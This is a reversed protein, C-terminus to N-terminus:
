RRTQRSLAILGLALLAWTGPEPVFTLDLTAFTPVRVFYDGGMGRGDIIMVSATVLQIDGIGNEDRNDFGTRSVSLGEVGGVVVDSATVTGTSWEMGITQTSLIEDLPFPVFGVQVGGLGIPDLFIRLLLDDDKDVPLPQSYFEFTGDLSMLGGVTGDPRPAFSGATTSYNTLASQVVPPIEEPTGPGFDGGFDTVTFAGAPLQFVGTTADRTAEGAGATPIVLLGDFIDITLTGQFSVATAQHVPVLTALGLWLTLGLFRNLM